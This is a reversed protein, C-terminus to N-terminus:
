NAKARDAVGSITQGPGHVETAAREMRQKCVCCLKEKHLNWVDKVSEESLKVFSQAAMAEIFARRGNARTAAETGLDARVTDRTTEGCYISAVVFHLIPLSTVSPRHLM